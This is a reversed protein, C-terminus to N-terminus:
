HHRTCVQDKAGMQVLLLDSHMIWIREHLCCGESEARELVLVARSPHGDAVEMAAYAEWANATGPGGPDNAQCRGIAQEHEMRAALMKSAADHAQCAEKFGASDGSFAEKADELLSAEDDGALPVSLFRRYLRKVRDKAKFVEGDGAGTEEADELEDLEFRLFSRWVAGGLIPHVGVHSLAREFAERMTSIGGEDDEDLSEELAELYGPWLKACQYDSFAREYLDLVDELGDEGGTARRDDIWEQWLEPSLPFRTSFSNGTRLFAI